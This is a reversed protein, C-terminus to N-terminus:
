TIIITKKSESEYHPEGEKIEVVKALVIGFNTQNNLFIKRVIEIEAELINDENSM